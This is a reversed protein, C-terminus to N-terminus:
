SRQQRLTDNIHACSKAPKVKTSRLCPFGESATESRRRALYPFPRGAARTRAKRPWPSTRSTVSTFWTTRLRSKCVLSINAKQGRGQEMLALSSKVISGHQEIKANKSLLFANKAFWGIGIELNRVWTFLEYSVEDEGRLALSSKVPSGYQEVKANKSLLSANEAFWGIV